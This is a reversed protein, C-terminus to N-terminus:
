VETNAVVVVTYTVGAMYATTTGSSVRPMSVTNADTIKLTEYNATNPSSTDAYNNSVGWAYGPSFGNGGRRTVINTKAWFKALTIGMTPVIDGLTQAWIAACLIDTTGLNHVVIFDNLNEAPTIEAMYIGSTGGSGGGAVIAGIAAAMESPKYKTTEGNKARIADAIAQINSEEYLKKAM